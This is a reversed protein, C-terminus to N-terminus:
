WSLQGNADGGSNVPVNGVVQGVDNLASPSGKNLSNVNSPFGLQKSLDLVKGTSSNDFKPTWLVPGNTTASVGIVQGWKNLSTGTFGHVLTINPLPTVNYAPVALAPGVAAFSLSIPAGFLFNRLMKQIATM